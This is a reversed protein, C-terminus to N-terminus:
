LKKKKSKKLKKKNKKTKNKLFGGTKKKKSKNKKSKNRLGGGEQIINPTYIGSLTSNFYSNKCEKKAIKCDSSSYGKCNSESSGVKPYEIESGVEKLKEKLKSLFINIRKYYDKKREKDLIDKDVVFNDNVDVVFNKDFESILKDFPDKITTNNIHDTKKYLFPLITIIQCLNLMSSETQRFSEAYSKSSLDPILSEILTEVGEEEKEVQILYEKLMNKLHDFTNICLEIRELIEKKKEAEVWTLGRKFITKTIFMDFMQIFLPNNNNSGGYLIPKKGRAYYTYNKALKTYEGDMEYKEPETYPILRHYIAKCVYSPIFLESSNRIQNWEIEEEKIEKLQEGFIRTEYEEM